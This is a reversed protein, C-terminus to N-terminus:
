KGVGKVKFSDFFKPGKEDLIKKSESVAMVQYLRNGIIFVRAKTIAKKPVKIEVERGPNGHFDLVKEDELTGKVSKVAGDRASDLMKKIDAKKFMEKPYDVYGVVFGIEKLGARYMIFELKGAATDMKKSEKRPQGPFLVSFRGPKSNYRKFGELEDGGSMFYIIWSGAIFVIAFGIIYKMSKM